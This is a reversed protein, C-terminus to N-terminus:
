KQGRPIERIVTTLEKVTLEFKDSTKENAERWEGREERHSEAQKDIHSILWRVIVGLATFLALIVLGALGFEKWQEIQSLM